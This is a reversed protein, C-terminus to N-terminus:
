LVQTHNKKKKRVKRERTEVPCSFSLDERDKVNKSNRTVASKDSLSM